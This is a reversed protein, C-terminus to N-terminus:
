ADATRLHSEVFVVDFRNCRTNRRLNTPGWLEYADLLDALQEADTATPNVAM